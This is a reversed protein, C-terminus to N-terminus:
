SSRLRRKKTINRVGLLCHQLRVTTAQGRGCIVVLLREAKKFDVPVGCGDRYMDGLACLAEAARVSGGAAAGM